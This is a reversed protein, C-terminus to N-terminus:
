RTRRNKNCVKKMSQWVFPEVCRGIFRTRGARSIRINFTIHGATQATPPRPWGHRRTESQDSFPGVSAATGCVSREARILNAQSLAARSLAALTLAAKSLTVQGLAAGSLTPQSFAAQSQTGSLLVTKYIRREPLATGRIRGRTKELELGTNYDFKYMKLDDGGCVFIAKGPLLSASNVITPVKFENLKTLSEADWFSVTNGSAVTLIQGDPSVEVCNPVSPFELKQIEQGSSAAWVRVTKDDSCSILRTDNRYFYLHKINNTHGSFEILATDPKNLDWIRLLKENSGTALLSSDESFHVSKVIHKHPISLLEGGNVADWIKAHFDAAGSAAKTANKNIAVGWVAGKHGEFTGIWDGTDGQRLMPKGDKSASILFYSSDTVDSFALHVVPRTHGSCTLPIQRLGSM